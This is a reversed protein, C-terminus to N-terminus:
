AYGTALTGSGFFVIDTFWKDTAVDIFKLTDGGDGGTTTVNLTYKLDDSGDPAFTDNAGATLHWGKALGSLLDGALATVTVSVTQVGNNIVTYINGTGTAAPLTITLGASTIVPLFVLREAHTAATLALETAAASVNIIRGTLDAVANIEAATATLGTLDLGAANTLPDFNCSTVSGVNTYIVDNGGSGDTHIFICGKGFGATADTPVTAGCVVAPQQLDNLAILMGGPPYAAHPTVYDSM